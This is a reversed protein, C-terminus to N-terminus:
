YSAIRVIMIISIRIRIRIRLKPILKITAIILIPIIIEVTARAEITLNRKSNFSNCTSKKSKFKIIKEVGNTNM